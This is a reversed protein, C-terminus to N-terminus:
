EEQRLTGFCSVELEYATIASEQVDSWMASFICTVTDSHLTYTTSGPGDGARSLDERWSGSEFEKKVIDHPFPPLDGGAVEASVRVLCGLTRSARGGDDVIGDAEVVRAGKVGKLLAAISECAPSVDENYLGPITFIHKTEEIAEARASGQAFPLADIVGECEGREYNWRGGHDLCSDIMIYRRVWSLFFVLVVASAACLLIRRAGMGGWLRDPAM